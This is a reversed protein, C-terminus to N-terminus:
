NGTNSTSIAMKSLGLQSVADMATVFAQVNATKDPKIVVARDRRDNTALRIADILTNVQNNVLEKGAVVYQGSATVIIEVPQDEAPKDTAKANPLQVKLESEKQFTTSVMFFILLLFVVDILPTLNLELPEENRRSFRM